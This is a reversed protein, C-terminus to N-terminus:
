ASAQLVRQLLRLAVVLLLVGMVVRRRRLTLRDNIWAGIQSGGQAGLFVLPALALNVRGVTWAMEFVQPQTMHQLAGAASAAVMVMNSLAVVRANTTIGAMLALPVMIAGGGIGSMGSGVGMALGILVAAVTRQRVDEPRVQRPEIFFTRVAVLGLLVIFVWIVTADSWFGTMWSGLVGGAVAGCATPVAVRWQWDAHGRNLRWVNVLAVLTIIFLSTGKATIPDMGPVFELFAPVMLIGGGVGLAAGLLGVGVGM